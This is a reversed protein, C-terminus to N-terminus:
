TGTKLRGEAACAVAWDDIGARYRGAVFMDTGAVLAADLALAWGVLDVFACRRDEPEGRRFWEKAEAAAVVTATGGDHDDHGLVDPRIVLYDGFAHRDDRRLWTRALSRDLGDWHSDVLAKAHAPVLGLALLEVALSVKVLDLESYAARHGKGVSNASSPFALRQLYKLRAEVAGRAADGHMASMIASLEGFSLAM